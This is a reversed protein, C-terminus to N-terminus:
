IIIVQLLSYHFLIHVLIYIYIVSNSQQVASILVVLYLDIISSKKFVGFLNFKLFNFILHFLNKFIEFLYVLLFFPNFGRMTGCASTSLSRIICQVWESRQHAGPDHPPQQDLSLVTVALGQWINLFLICTYVNKNYSTGMSYVSNQLMVWNLLMDQSRNWVLFISWYYIKDAICFDM